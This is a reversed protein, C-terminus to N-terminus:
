HGLLRSKVSVRGQKSTNNVCGLGEWDLGSRVALTLKSILFHLPTNRLLVRCQLCHIPFHNLPFMLHSNSRYSRRSPLSTPPCLIFVTSVLWHLSHFCTAKTLTQSSILPVRAHLCVSLCVFGVILQSLCVTSCVCVCVCGKQLSHTWCNWGATHQQQSM